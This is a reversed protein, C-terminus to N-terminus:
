PDQESVYYNNSNIGIDQTVRRFSYEYKQHQKILTPTPKKKELTNKMVRRVFIINFYPNRQTRVYSDRRQFYDNDRM